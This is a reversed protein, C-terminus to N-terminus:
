TSGLHISINTIQLKFKVSLKFCCGFEETVGSDTFTVKCFLNYKNHRLLNWQNVRVEDAAIQPNGPLLEDTRGPVRARFDLSIVRNYKFNESVRLSTHVIAHRSSYAAAAALAYDDESALHSAMRCRFVCPRVCACVSAYRSTTVVCRSSVRRSQSVVAVCVCETRGLCDAHGTYVLADVRLNFVSPRCARRHQAAGDMNPQM